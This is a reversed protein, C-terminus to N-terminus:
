TIATSRNIAGNMAITQRSIADRWAPAVIASM